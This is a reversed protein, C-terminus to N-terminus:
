KIYLPKKEFFCGDNILYRANFNDTADVVIDYEFILRRANKSDLKEKIPVIKVHPNLNSLKHVASDIKSKGIDTTSHLIQRQLNSEDVVDFDVVGLRGIGAAVLYLAVPSGLGGAGILLVSSAKIKKQGAIGIENLSFHRQYRGYETSTLHELDM